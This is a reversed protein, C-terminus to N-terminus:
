GPSPLQPALLPLKLRVATLLRGHLTVMTREFVLAKALSVIVMVTVTLSALEPSGLFMGYPVTLKVEDFAPFKEAVEQERTLPVQM